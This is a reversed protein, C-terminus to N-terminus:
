STASVEVRCCLLCVDVDVAPNSGVTGARMRGDVLAESRATVPITRLWSLSKVSEGYTVASM